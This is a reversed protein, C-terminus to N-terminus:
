LQSSLNWNCLLQVEMVEEQKEAKPLSLAIQRKEERHNKEVFILHNIFRQQEMAIREENQSKEKKLEAALDNTKQESFTRELEEFDNTDIQTRSMEFENNSAM